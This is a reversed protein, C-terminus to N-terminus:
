VERGTDLEWAKLVGFPLTGAIHKGDPTFAVLGVGGIQGTRAEARTVLRGTSVDWVRVKGWGLGAVLRGDPRFAVDTAAGDGGDEAHLIRLRRRCLETLFHHEWHRLEPDCGALVAAARGVNGERWERQALSIQLAYRA